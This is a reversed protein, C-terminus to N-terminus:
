ITRVDRKTYGWVYLGNGHIYKLLRETGEIMRLEDAARQLAARETAETRVGGAACQAQLIEEARLALGQVSDRLESKTHQPKPAPSSDQRQLIASLEAHIRPVDEAVVFRWPYNFTWAGPGFGVGDTHGWCIPEFTYPCGRTLTLREDVLCGSPSNPRKRTLVIDTPAVFTLPKLEPTKSPASALQAFREEGALWPVVIREGEGLSFYKCQMDQGPTRQALCFAGTTTEYFRVSDWPSLRVSTGSPSDFAAARKAIFCFSASM